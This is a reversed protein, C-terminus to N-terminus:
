PKTAVIFLDGKLHPVLYFPVKALDIARQRWSKVVLETVRSNSHARRIIRFGHESLLNVLEMLEYEHFHRRWEDSPDQSGMPSLRDYNSRGILLKFVNGIRTVNPTTIIISGGRKLLRHSEQLMWTPNTLHEIIEGAHIYNVSNDELPITTPFNRSMLDPNIPDLNVELISAGCEKEMLSVFDASANLGAGYLRLGEHRALHQLLRLFTGPYPGLDLFTADSLTLNELIFRFVYFFRHRCRLAINMPRTFAVWTLDELEEFKLPAYGDVLTFFDKKRLQAM